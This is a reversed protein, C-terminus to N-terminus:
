FAWDPPYILRRLEDTLGNRNSRVADAADSHGFFELYNPTQQILMEFGPEARVGRARAARVLPTPQNKMLIDIVASGQDLLAVDFPLPDDMRLGLPTANIVIDFGAPSANTQVVPRRGCLDHVRSALAEARAQDLDFLALEGLVGTSSASHELLSVAIAAGGGGVGVILARKGAYSIGQHRLAGLFGLGDFADGQLSGDDLMKVANVAGAAQGAVSCHALLPMVTAKHPIALWLGKFNAVRLASKLLASFDARAVAIPVLVADINLREFVTNFVEPARVQDVPEGAIWYVATQGTIPMKHAQRGFTFFYGQHDDNL